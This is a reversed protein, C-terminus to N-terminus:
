NQQLPLEVQFSTGQDPTSEVTIQGGHQEVIKKVIALGLGTGRKKTTFFPEFIRARTQDNMGHGRDTIIIRASPGATRDGARAATRPRKILDTTITIPQADASADVANALLNVFVQRLQDVDLTGTLPQATYHREVPTQKARLKDAVLELSSDLLDHLNVDTFALERDRSFETVDVTLKNLHEIGREVLTITNHAEADSTMDRLMAVGLRISGLPNKIEHAVQASAQGVAALATKHRLETETAAAETVDVLTLIQGPEGDLNLPASYVDFSRRPAPPASTTGNGAAAGDANLTWRGHYTPQEVRASTVAALLKLGEADAIDDHVSAGIAARPFLRFFTRNASRIHVHADLAVVASMMGELMQSSFQRERRSEILSARLQRFRRQLEWIALAAILVALTAAIFTLRRIRAQAAQELKLREVALAEQELGAQAFFQDLKTNLDRYQTFGNFGYTRPDETTHLYENLLQRFEHGQQERALALHEFTPLLAEVEARAKGLKVAFPNIIDGQLDRRQLQEQRTRAETDLTILANRLQLLYSTKAAQGRESQQVRTSVDELYSQSKWGLGAVLGVLLVFSILLVPLLPEVARGGPLMFGGASSAGGRGGDGATEGEVPLRSYVM